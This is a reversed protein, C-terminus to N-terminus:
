QQTGTVTVPVSVAVGQCGDPASHVMDLVGPIAFVTSGSTNAPVSISETVPASADIAVDASPCATTNLSVPTGWSLGTITVAYPNPNAIKFYVTGAPGGPYLNAAAGSPTVATVTLGQAVAAAAGGTGSGSASWVAYAVGSGTAAATLTAVPVFWRKDIKM